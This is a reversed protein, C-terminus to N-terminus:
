YENLNFFLQTENLCKDNENFTLKQQSNQKFQGTWQKGDPDILEILSNEQINNQEFQAKLIHGSPWYYTGLGDM